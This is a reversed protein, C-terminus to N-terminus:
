YTSDLFLCIRTADIHVKNEIIKVFSLAVQSKMYIYSDKLFLTAIVPYFLIPKQKLLFIGNHWTQSKYHHNQGTM